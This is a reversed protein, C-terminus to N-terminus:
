LRACDRTLTVNLNLGTFFSTVDSSTERCQLDHQGM